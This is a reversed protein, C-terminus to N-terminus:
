SCWSVGVKKEVRLGGELALVFGQTGEENVLFGGGVDSAAEAVGDTGKADEAMLETVVGVFTGGEETLGVAPRLRRGFTIPNAIQGNGHAFAVEGDIVDLAFESGGAM